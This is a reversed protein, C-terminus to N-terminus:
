MGGPAPPSVPSAAAEPANPPTEKNPPNKDELAIWTFIIKGEVLEPNAGAAMQGLVEASMSARRNVQLKTVRLLGPAERLFQTLFSYVHVDSMAGLAIEMDEHVLVKYNLAQLAAQQSLKEPSITLRMSDSLRFQDKLKKLTAKMNETSNDFNINGRAMEMKAYRALAGETQALQTQMLAVQSRDQNLANEAETKSQGAGEALHTAGLMLLGV